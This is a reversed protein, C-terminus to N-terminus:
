PVETVKVAEAELKRKEEMRRQRRYELFDDHLFSLLYDRTIPRDGILEVVKSDLIAKFEAKQTPACHILNWHADFIEDIKRDIGM